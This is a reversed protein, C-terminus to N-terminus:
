KTQTKVDKTVEKYGSLLARVCKFYVPLDEQSVLSVDLKIGMLNCSSKILLVLAADDPRQALLYEYATQLLDAELLQADSLLLAGNVWAASKVVFGPDTVKLLTGIDKGLTAYNSEETTPNIQLPCGWIFFLAVLIFLLRTFKM